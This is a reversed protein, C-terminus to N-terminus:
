STPGNYNNLTLFSDNLDGENEIPKTKPLGNIVEQNVNLIFDQNSGQFKQQSKILNFLFEKQDGKIIRAKGSDIYFLDCNIINEYQNIPQPSLVFNNPFIPHFRESADIQTQINNLETQLNQITIQRPNVWSKLYELSKLIFYEHTTNLISYFKNNYINFFEEVTRLEPSFEVFSIDLLEKTKKVEYVDKKLYIKSPM